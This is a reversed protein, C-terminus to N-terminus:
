TALLGHVHDAIALSSTLGPSEIGFLNVLGDIGHVARGQIAFDAAPAGAAYLKPRLGTYSPSLKGPEVTPFYRRIAAVFEELKREDFTYDIDEVWEADPGFRVFGALDNTAHIGLGGVIPVPYVLHRFPSRGSYAFYHGKALYTRPVTAANVGDVRQALSPAWLGAANVLRRCRVSSQPNGDCIVSFGGSEVFVKDVRHRLVVAGGCSELDAQLSLMLAQSDVIGTSPSFLAATAALLPERATVETQTLWQLDDVGNARAKADIEHLVAEDEAGGAVILKGLRAHPVNRKGCYAYLAEKGDVCLQAKLSGEPYYIGAHIVESNRSSTHAGIRDEVELVAVEQGAMAMRRAIALGVVGAGVVICDLTDSM